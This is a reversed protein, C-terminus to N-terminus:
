RTTSQVASRFQDADFEWDENLTFSAAVACAHQARVPEARLWPVTDVRECWATLARFRILWVLARNADDVFRQCIDDITVPASLDLACAFEPVTLVAVDSPSTPFPTTRMSGRRMENVAM